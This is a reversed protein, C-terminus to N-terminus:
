RMERFVGVENSPTPIKKVSMGNLYAAELFYFTIAFRTSLFVPDSLRYFKTSSLGNQLSFCFFGMEDKSDEGHTQAAQDRICM